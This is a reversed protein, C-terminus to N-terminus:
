RHIVFKGVKSVSGGAIAVYYYPGSPVDTPVNWAVEGSNGSLKLEGIKEGSMSFIKITGGSKAKDPLSFGFKTSSGVPNTGIRVLPRKPPEVKLTQSKTATCGSNTATLTATLSGSRFYVHRPNVETSKSNDGFDWSFNATLPDSKNTFIVLDGANITKPSFEFDAKPLQAGGVTLALQYDRTNLESDKVTLRVTYCGQKSFAHTVNKGSATNSSGSQPDGFDWSYSTIQCNTGSVTSGSADFSVSLGSTSGTTFVANLSTCDPGPGPGGDGVTFVGNVVDFSTINEPPDGATAFKELSITIDGEDGNRSKSDVTAAFQFIPGNTKCRKTICVFVFAIEGGFEDVDAVILYNQTDTPMIGSEKVEFFDPFTIKGNIAGIGPEPVGVVNIKIIVASGPSGKTAGGVLVKTTAEALAVNHSVLFFGLLFLIAWLARKMPVGKDKNLMALSM